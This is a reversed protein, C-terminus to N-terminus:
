SPRTDGLKLSAHAKLRVHKREQSTTAFEIWGLKDGHWKLVQGDSVGTYPGGGVADFAITKPM